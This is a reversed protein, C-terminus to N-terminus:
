PTQPSIPPTRPVAKWVETSGLFSLLHWWKRTFYPSPPVAGVRCVVPKCYVARLCMRTRLCPTALATVTHKPTSGWVRGRWCSASGDSCATFDGPCWTNQDQLALASAAVAVCLLHVFRSPSQGRCQSVWSLKLLGTERRTNKGWRPKKLSAKSVYAGVQGRGDKCTEQSLPIFLCKNVALNFVFIQLGSALVAKLSRTWTSGAAPSIFEWVNNRLLPAFWTGRASWHKWGELM